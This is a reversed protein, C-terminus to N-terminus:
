DSDDQYLKWVIPISTETQEADTYYGWELSSPLYQTSQLILDNVPFIGSDFSTKICIYKRMSIDDTAVM